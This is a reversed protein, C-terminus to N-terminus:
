RVVARCSRCRGLVAKEIERDFGGSEVKTCRVSWWVVILFLVGRDLKCRVVDVKNGGVM